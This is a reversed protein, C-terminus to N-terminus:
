RASRRVADLVTKRRRHSGEYLEVAALVAADAGSLHEVLDAARLQDYGKWPEEIRLQAGAGDEAGAEAVSQM